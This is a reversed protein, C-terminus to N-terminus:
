RSSPLLPSTASVPISNLLKQAPQLQPDLQLAIKLQDVAPPIQGALFLGVALNYRAVPDSPSLQVVAAFQEVALNYEGQGLLAQGLNTHAESYNPRLLIAAHFEAIADSVRGAALLANALNYHYGSDHPAIETSAAFQDISAAIQGNQLLLAGLNSHADAYDPKFQIASRYEAMADATQGAQVLANGLNYHARPNGPVKAVTDSWLAIESAFVQNHLLTLGCLALAALPWILLTIRGLAAYLGCVVLSLVAALSLYLRHEVMTDALPLISSSPSLIVFFWAAVFGLPPHRWCAWLSAAMLGAVLILYLYIASPQIIVLTQGYDFVLPYPCFSLALYHPIVWAQTLAYHWVSISLGYGATGARFDGAVVLALLLGWTAALGAYLPWRQRLANPFSGAVFTRDYLLVMLPATVMVEKTAMGLLCATLSCALWPWPRLSNVGRSFTYLTLLYFLGMLSEARQAVYTVSETQLPHVLWLLAICGALLLSDRGFRERLVPQRLTRRVLGFLTLCALLHIGLNAAHYSWVATGSIAYNVAFSLNLLPRNGVTGGGPPPSLAAWPPWLHTITPNLTIADADDFVFPSSFSGGYAIFGALLLLVVVLWIPERAAPQKLSSKDVTPPSFSQVPKFAIELPVLKV